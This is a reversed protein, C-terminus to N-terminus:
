LLPRHARCVTPVDFDIKNLYHLRLKCLCSRRVCRLVERSSKRYKSVSWCTKKAAQDTRRPCSSRGYHCRTTVQTPFSSSFSLWRYLAIYLSLFAKLIGRPRGLRARILHLSGTFNRHLSGSRRQWYCPQATAHGYMSLMIIARSVHLVASQCCIPSLNINRLVISLTVALAWLRYRAKASFNCCM